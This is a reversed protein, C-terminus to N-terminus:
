EIVFGVTMREDGNWDRHTKPKDLMGRVAHGHHTDHELAIKVGAPTEQVLQRIEGLGDAGCEGQTAIKPEEAVESPRKAMAEDSLYPLNAVILDPFREGDIGEKLKGIGLIGTGQWFPVLLELREANAIAVDIAHPDIDSATVLLDPREKAIALAVAGCGTGVEHVWARNPLEIAEMVLLETEGRPVLVRDNILLDLGRWTVTRETAAEM